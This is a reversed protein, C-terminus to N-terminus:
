WSMKCDNLFVAPLSEQDVPAFMLQSLCSDKWQSKTLIKSFLVLIINGVSSKLYVASFQVFEKKNIFNPILLSFDGKVSYLLNLFQIPCGRVLKLFVPMSVSESWSHHAEVSVSGCTWTVSTHWPAETGKVVTYLVVCPHATVCRNLTCWSSLWAFYKVLNIAM